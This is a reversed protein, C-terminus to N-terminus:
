STPGCPTPNGTPARRLAPSTFAWRTAGAFRSISVSKTAGCRPMPVPHAKAALTAALPQEDFVRAGARVDYSEIHLLGDVRKYPRLFGGLFKLRHWESPMRLPVFALDYIPRGHILFGDIPAADSPRFFRKAGYLAALQHPLRRKDAYPHERVQVPKFVVLGAPHRDEPVLRGMAAASRNFRGTQRFMAFTNLHWHLDDRISERFGSHVLLEGGPEHVVAFQVGFKGEEQTPVGMGIMFLNSRDHPEAYMGGIGAQTPAEALAAFRGELAEKRANFAAVVDDVPKADLSLYAVVKPADPRAFVTGGNTRHMTWGHPVFDIARPKRPADQARAAPM